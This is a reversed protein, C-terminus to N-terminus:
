KGGVLGYDPRQPAMGSRLSLGLTVGAIRWIGAAAITKKPEASSEDQIGWVEFNGVVEDIPFETRELEVPPNQVLGLVRGNRQELPQFEEADNRGIEILKELDAHAAQSLALIQPQRGLPGVHECRPLCQAVDPLARVRQHLFLVSQEILVQYGRELLFADAEHPPCPPPRRM